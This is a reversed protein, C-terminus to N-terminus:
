PGRVGLLDCAQASSFWKVDEPPDFGAAMLADVATSLGVGVRAHTGFVHQNLAFMSPTQMGARGCATLGAIIRERRITENDSM